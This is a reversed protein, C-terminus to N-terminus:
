QDRTLEEDIMSIISKSRSKLDLYYPLLRFHKGIYNALCSELLKFEHSTPDNIFKWDSDYFMKEDNFVDPFWPYYKTLAIVQGMDTTSRATFDDYEQIHKVAEYAIRYLGTIAIKLDDNQFINQNGTNVM